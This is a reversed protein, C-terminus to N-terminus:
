VNVPAKSVEAPSLEGADFLKHYLVFLILDFEGEVGLRECIKLIHLLLKHQGMGLVDAREQLSYGAMTLAIIQKELQTLEFSEEGSKALAHGSGAVAFSGSAELSASQGEPLGIGQAGNQM